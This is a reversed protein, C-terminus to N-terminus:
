YLNIILKLMLLLCRLSTKTYVLIKCRFPLSCNHRRSSIHQLSMNIPCVCCCLQTQAIFSASRTGSLTKLKPRGKKDYFSCPCINHGYRYVCVCVCVCVCICVCVRQVNQLIHCKKELFFPWTPFPTTVNSPM